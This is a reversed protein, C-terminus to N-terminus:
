PVEPPESPAFSRGLGVRDVKGTATRPLEPLLQISEPVMYRPVRDLCHRQLTAVTAGAGARLVVAAHLRSSGDGNPVVVAAAEEVEPHEHLAAEVDGLEVRYGRVKVMSDRRGLFALLGDDRWRVLDGTRYFLAGPRVGPRPDPVLARATRGPDNWYGRMTSEGRVWLEGSEGPGALSGGQAVVLCEAYPCPRGIPLPEHQSEPIVETVRHWTCVNTETPGYLNLLAARPLARQLARLAPVPFVEGAFLVARLSEPATQVLAGSTAMKALVSPVSYWVTVHESVIWRALPLPFFSLAEPVLSVAAGTVFAAYLDFISLDFHFPAHSSLVDSPTIGVEGAAWDVFSLASRHTLMVGKPDGTSGSTYLVYALDEGGPLSPLSPGGPGPGSFTAGSVSVDPSVDPDSPDGARLVVRPAPSEPEDLLEPRKALEEATTVLGAVNADALIRRARRMPAGPDVPVYAAGARLAGLLAAVSELSKPLLLGVRDGRRVGGAVLRAAIGEMATALKGYSLTRAGDRVAIAEPIREASRYLRAPLSDHV